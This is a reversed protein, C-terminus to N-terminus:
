MLAAKLVSLMTPAHTRGADQTKKAHTRRAQHDFQSRDTVPVMWGDVEVVVMVVWCLAHLAGLSEVEGPVALERERGGVVM